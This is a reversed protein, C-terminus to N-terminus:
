KGPALITLSAKRFFYMIWSPLADVSKDAASYTNVALLSGGAIRAPQVQQVTMPNDPGLGSTWMDVRAAVIVHYNRYDSVLDPTARKLPILIAILLLVIGVSPARIPRWHAAFLALSGIAILMYCQRMTAHRECCSLGFQYFGAALVLFAAGILSAALVLRMLQRRSRSAEHDLSFLFYTGFFFTVKLLLISLMETLSDSPTDTGVVERLFLRAAALVASVPEHVISRDGFVEGTQAARGTLMLYLVGLSVTFPLAWWTALRDKTVTSVVFALVCYGAVFLAGIEASTAAVVLAVVTVIRGTRMDAFGAFDITLLCAIAALTPMYALAGIPWYFVEDVKHGLLFLVLLTSSAVLGKRTVASPIITCAILL